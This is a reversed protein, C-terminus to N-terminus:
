YLTLDALANLRGLPHPCLDIERSVRHRAAFGVTTAMSFVVITSVCLRVFRYPLPTRATSETSMLTRRPSTYPKRPGLPAPFVVVKRMSTPRMRGVEPVAVTAPCAGPLGAPSAQMPESM